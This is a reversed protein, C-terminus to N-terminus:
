FPIDDDFDQAPNFDEKPKPQEKPTFSLSMFSGNKGQKVWASLWMEEGNIECSGKYHPHTDKDRRDNKFLVGRMNNDYESM